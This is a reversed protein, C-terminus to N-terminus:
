VGYRTKVERIAGTLLTAAFSKSKKWPGSQASSELNSAVKEAIRSGEKAFTGQVASWSQNVLESLLDENFVGESDPQHNSNELCRKLLRDRASVFRQWQPHQRGSNRDPHYQYAAKRFAARIASESPNLEFIELLALDSKHQMSCNWSLASQYDALSM